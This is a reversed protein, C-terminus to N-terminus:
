GGKLVCAVSVCVCVCVCVCVSVCMIVHLHAGGCGISGLRCPPCSLDRARILHILSPRGGGGGGTWQETDVRGGGRERERSKNIEIMRKGASGATRLLPRNVEPRAFLTIAM